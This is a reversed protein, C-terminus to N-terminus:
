ADVAWAKMSAVNHLSNNHAIRRPRSVGASRLVRDHSASSEHRGCAADSFCPIRQFLPNSGSSERAAAMSDSQQPVGGADRLSTLAQGGLEIASCRVKLGVTPPELGGPPVG